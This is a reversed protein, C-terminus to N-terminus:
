TVSPSGPLARPVGSGSRCTLVLAARGIGARTLDPRREFPIKSQTDWCNGKRSMSQRIAHRSLLARYEVASYTTGQDSHLIGPASGRNSIAMQLADMALQCDLTRSMAWGVVARSHLDLIAALYLWGERTPIYTIDSLWCADPQDASFTRSVLDPSAKRTNRSDTTVRYRQIAKPMIQAQRMLKAVTNLCCAFGQACLEAHVRPAGYTHRSAVHISRIKSTLLKQRQSRESPARTRWAYYGSTSVNLARCMAKVPYSHLHTAIFQHKM